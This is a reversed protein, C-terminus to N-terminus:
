LGSPLLQKALNARAGSPYTQLYRRAAAQSQTVEGLKAHAVMLRVLAEEALPGSPSEQLYIKYWHLARAPQHARDDEMRGLEFAATQASATGAFRKRLASLARESVDGRGAYRGADALARLDQQSRTDLVDQLGLRHAEDVVAAHDGAALRQEWTLTAAPRAVPPAVAVAPPEVAPTFPAEASAAPAAPVPLAQMPPQPAQQQLIPTRTVPVSRAGRAVSSSWPPTVAAPPSAQPEVSPQARPDALALAAIVPAGGQVHLSHGAELPTRAALGPGSVRVSGTKLDVRFRRSAGDWHVDFATGTVEVLYPGAEVRWAAKPRKKVELSLSGEALVMTAGQAHLHSIMARSRKGVKAVTGESFRLVTQEPVMAGVGPEALAGDRKAVVRMEQEQGARQLAFFAVVCAVSLTPVLLWAWPRRRPTHLQHFARAFRRRQEDHEPALANAGGARVLAALNEFAPERANAAADGSIREDQPSRSM